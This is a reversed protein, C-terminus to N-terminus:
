KRYFRTYRKILWYKRNSRIFPCVDILNIAMRYLNTYDVEVINNLITFTYDRRPRYTTGISEFFDNFKFHGGIVNNSFELHVTPKMYVIGM